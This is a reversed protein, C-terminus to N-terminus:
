SCSRFIFIFINKKVKPFIHFSKQCIIVKHANTPPAPVNSSHNKNSSHVARRKVIKGPTGPSQPRNLSNSAYRTFHLDSLTRPRVSAVKRPSGSVNKAPTSTCNPLDAYAANSDNEMFSIEIKPSLMSDMSSSDDNEDKSSTLNTNNESQDIPFVPDPGPNCTMSSLTELPMVHRHAGVALVDRSTQEVLIVLNNQTIFYLQIFIM